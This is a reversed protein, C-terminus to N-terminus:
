ARGHHKSVTRSGFSYAERVIDEPIDTMGDTGSVKL